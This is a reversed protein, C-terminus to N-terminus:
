SQKEEEQKRDKADMVGELRCEKGVRREESRDWYDNLGIYWGIDRMFFGRSYDEGFSPFLFGSTRKNMKPFFAFPVTIFPLPVDEIVLYAPGTIVNKETVLRRSIFIGFHTHPEPLNCTSYIANKISAENFENKKLQQAQIFGGEVESFTGFVKGRKSDFNYYLSDTTAPPETSTKFIPRGRYKHNHDYSGSAFLLHSNNDIRIYDATLEFDEYKIKANGFFHIVNNRYDMWSSDSAASNIASNLANAKQQPSRSQAITDQL